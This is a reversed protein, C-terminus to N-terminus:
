QLGPHLDCASQMVAPRNLVPLAGLLNIVLRSLMNYSHLSLAYTLKYTGKYAKMAQHRLHRGVFGAPLVVPFLALGIPFLLSLPAKVPSVLVGGPQELDALLM